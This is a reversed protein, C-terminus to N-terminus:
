KGLADRVEAEDTVIIKLLRVSEVDRTLELRGYMSASQLRIWGWVPEVVAFIRKLVGFWMM